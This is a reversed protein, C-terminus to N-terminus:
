QEKELRGILEELNQRLWSATQKMLQIRGADFIQKSIKTTDFTYQFPTFGAAPTWKATVDPDVCIKNWQCGDGPPEVWKPKEFV